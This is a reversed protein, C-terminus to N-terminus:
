RNILPLFLPDSNVETLEETQLYDILPISSASVVPELTFRDLRGGDERLYFTVYHQGATLEVVVAEKGSRDSVYYQNYATNAPFDWLYAATPQNDVRVFFSNHNGGAAYANARILYQGAQAVTVCYTAQPGNPDFSYGNGFGNPVHVYQGGSAAAANGVVFGNQLTGAEAERALGDCQGGTPPPTPSPTPSPTPTPTPTGGGVRLLALKDLRTGAERNYIIVEHPGAALTLEVPDSGGRSSVFDAAYSTNVLTDWLYADSPQGDVQVYLSNSNGNVGYVFGQIRYKGAETVTFCYRAGHSNSSMSYNNGSNAPKNVYAGNSASADTGVVFDGFLQGNEAEQVLPGCTGPPTTPTPTPTETPPTPTVTPTPTASSGNGCDSEVPGPATSGEGIANAQQSLWLKDAVFGDERMWLSVTYTGASPINVSVPASGVRNRWNYVSSFGNIGASGTAAQDGLGAHVSDNTSRGPTPALGRVYIYYRGPTSFNVKYELKAGNLNSGTGANRNPLAQMAGQGSFGSIDNIYQWQIDAEPETGALRASYHEAEMVVSGGQETFTTSGAQCVQPTSTNTPTPTPSPPQTSVTTSTATATATPTDTPLVIATATATPTDTPPTVATATATPTDTPLVIATATATPTHTPTPPVLTFTPTATPTNTPTPPVTTFTATPPVLTNTATATPTDTPTPPVPTFTATPPVLTNTATATPTDTPTPPVPTFTATPLEIPLIVVTGDIAEDLVDAGGATAQTQRPFESTFTLNTQAVPAVAEFTIALFTFTGSPNQGFTGYVADIQGQANITERPQLPILPIPLVNGAEYSINTVQLLTNDFDLHVEVADVPQSGTRVQVIVDFTNGETVTTSTPEIAIEVRNQVLLSSAQATFSPQLFAAALVLALASCILYTRLKPM